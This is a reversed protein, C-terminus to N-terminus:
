QVAEIADAATPTTARLHQLIAQIQVGFNVYATAKGLYSVGSAYRTGRHLAVVRWQDDCVPSGSSGADTDTFYRISTADADTVLNNRLAVRKPKGGPHQVINVATRASTDFSLPSPALRPIRRGAPGDLSLLAYDLETSWAVLGTVQVRVGDADENDFDFRLSASAAQRELDAGGASAEGALRANIVHHNTIALGPAILWATGSSVWPSGGSAMVQQGGEFRPVSILAVAEAVDLGGSLFGISVMDNTGIIQENKVVEPLGAPDPLAPLGGAVNTVRNLVREFVEAEVRGTLRLRAVANGLLILVPVEGGAMREVVNVRVLDLTFQDLASDMRPLSAAFAQPIGSLLVQRPADTLGGELAATTLENIEQSTLYGQFAM